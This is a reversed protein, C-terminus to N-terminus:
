TLKHCLKETKRNVSSVAKESTPATRLVDLGETLLDLSALHCFFTLGFQELDLVFFRGLGCTHVATTLSTTTTLRFVRAVTM